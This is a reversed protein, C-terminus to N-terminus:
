LDMKKADQGFFGNAYSFYSTNLNHNLSHFENINNFLGLSNDNSAILKDEYVYM